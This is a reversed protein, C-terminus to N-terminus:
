LLIGTSLPSPRSGTYLLGVFWAYDNEFIMHKIDSEDRKETQPFLGLRGVLLNEECISRSCGTLKSLSQM